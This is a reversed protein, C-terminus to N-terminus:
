LRGRQPLHCAMLRSPSPARETLQRQCSEWLSLWTTTRFHGKPLNLARLIQPALTIDGLLEQAYLTDEGINGALLFNEGAYLELLTLGETGQEVANEPLYQRRLNVYSEADIKRLAVPDNGWQATFEAIETATRYGIKEYFDFLKEESPVLIAGAYGNESLIRHTEAMLRTALGRGRFKPDTAVAYIYALKQGDITCDFWYLASAVKGDRWIGHYRNESFCNAFFRDLWEETDGFVEQWLTKLAGIDATM